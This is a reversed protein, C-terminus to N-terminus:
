ENPYPDGPWCYYCGQKWAFYNLIAFLIILAIIFPKMNKERGGCKKADSIAIQNPNIEVFTSRKDTLISVIIYEMLDFEKDFDQENM